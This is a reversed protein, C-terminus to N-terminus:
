RRVTWDGHRLRRSPYESYQPQDHHHLGCRCRDSTGFSRRLDFGHLQPRGRLCSHTLLHRCHLFACRGTNGQRHCRTHRNRSNASGNKFTVTGTPVVAGSAPTVTATLTLTDTVLAPNKSSALATTTAVQPTNIVESVATSTSGTFNPDGAYVATLSYTGATAFSVGALTAKGTADLGGTGLTASGNKFTVTGTPVVSGSAPAVTATLTLTDTTLAPNKSSGLATTTAVPAPNVVESVTTSTSVNFNADGSYDATLPLNRADAFQVGSLIATGSADLTATGLLTSGDKFDVTGTPITSGSAPTVTATFLTM